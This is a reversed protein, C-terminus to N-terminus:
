HGELNGHRMQLHGELDQLVTLRAVPMLPPDGAALWCAISISITRVSNHDLPSPPSSVVPLLSSFLFIWFFSWSVFCCLILLPKGHVDSALGTALPEARILIDALNLVVLSCGQVADLPILADKRCKADERLKFCLARM